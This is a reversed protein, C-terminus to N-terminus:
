MPGSPATVRRDRRRPPRGATKQGNPALGERRHARGRRKAHPVLGTRFDVLSSWGWAMSAVSACVITATPVFDLGPLIEEAFGAAAFIGSGYLWFILGATVPAWGVDAGEGAVPLLYSSMGILDILISVILKGERSLESAGGTARCVVSPRPAFGHPTSGVPRLPAVPPAFAHATAACIVVFLRHQM